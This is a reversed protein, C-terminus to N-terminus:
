TGGPAPNPKSRAAGCGPAAGREGERPRVPCSKYKTGDAKTVSRVEHELRIIPGAGVDQPDVVDLIRFM